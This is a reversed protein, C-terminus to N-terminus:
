TDPSRGGLSLQPAANRQSVLPTHGLAEDPDATREHRDRDDRAGKPKTPRRGRGSLERLQHIAAIAQQFLAIRGDRDADVGLREPKRRLAGIDPEVQGVGVQQRAPRVVRRLHAPLREFEIGVARRRIVQQTAREEPLVLGLRGRLREM